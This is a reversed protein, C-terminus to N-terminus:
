QLKAYEAKAQKLIPINPDANKWLTLFQQYAARAKITDGQLAYARALGLRALPHVPSLPDVGPHDIVQQFQSAAQAADNISLYALGRVYPLSFYSARDYSRAAELAAIASAAGDRAIAELAEIQPRYIQQLVTNEPFSQMLRDLLARSQTFDGSFAFALAADASTIWDSSVKLADTALDNTAKSRRTMAQWVAARALVQAATGPFGSTKAQQGATLALKESNAVQGVAAAREIFLRQVRIEESSNHALWDAEQNYAATENQAAALELLAIHILQPPGHEVAQRAADASERFRGTATYAEILDSWSYIHDPDAALSKKLYVLAEEFQGLRSYEDGFGQLPLWDNPYNQSWLLYTEIAHSHNGTVSKDYQSLIFYRERESVRGARTYAKRLYEEAKRQDGLNAYGLGADAYAMAFEPDLQIAREMLAIGSVEDGQTRKNRGLAYAKLADLASTTAQELPVNFKQVTALSEGLQRRLKSSAEGLADLVKEKAPATVQEQALPDGNQCNAAQLGLVYQSGLSAISGAIYVKSGARQCLERTLDPTLKTGAPRTMLHLTSAVKNEPLVNLFPSQNLAVSLAQKLTDDFVADGTNNKFDALVVTDKDTLAHAKTPRVYFYVLTSIAVLVLAAAALRIRRRNSGKSKDTQADQGDPDAGAAMERRLRKLDIRMEAASQYRLSADKELAISIIEQLRSPIQPDIQTAPIPQRNLIADHLEALSKGQFARFGTAMEYLTAGFSFLDTRADLEEGRAQEPSMYALTGIAAGPITLSLQATSDSQPKAQFKALGFDLIKAHGEATVFVNAPKIDRHIIGRAHAAALGSAIDIGLSVIDTLKLPGNAIRERLAMGEMLEMVIFARGHDEGIEHITCINPHNLASAACAEGRFRELAAPDNSLIGPLCKLAVQRPLKLDEAKYIVGMGGEGIKELIRFHGVTSGILPDGLGNGHERDAALLKAAVEFAPHDFVSDVSIPQCLLSDLATRLSENGNCRARLFEPRRVPDLKLAAHYLEELQRWPDAEM